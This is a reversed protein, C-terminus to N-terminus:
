NRLSFRYTLNIAARTVGIHTNNEFRNIYWKNDITSQQGINQKYNGYGLGLLFELALRNKKDLSLSYGYTLGVSWSPTANGANEGYEAEGGNQYLFGDSWQMTFWAMRAHIGFFSGKKMVKEGAWWRVEPSFGYVNTHEDDPVFINYGTYWGQLDLTLKDSLQVEAGLSPIVMADALLNTKVAVMFPKKKEKVAMTKKTVSPKEGVVPTEIVVPMEEVPVSTEIIQPEEVPVTAQQLAIYVTDRVYVTDSVHVPEKIHIEEKVYITDVRNVVQTTQMQGENVPKALYPKSPDWKCFVAIRVCRLKPFFEEELMKWVKGGDMDRLAKKRENQDLSRIATMISYKYPSDSKSVMEYLRDWDEKLNEKYIMYSPVDLVETLYKATADTRAKALKVNEEYQGDPSSSGCVYIQMIEKTPDNLLQLLGLATFSLKPNDAVASVGKPLTISTMTSDAYLVKTGLDEPKIYRHYTQASSHIGAVLGCLAALLVCLGRTCIKM